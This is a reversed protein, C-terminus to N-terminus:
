KALEAWTKGKLQAETNATVVGRTDELTCVAWLIVWSVFASKGIGHGSAISRRIARAAAESVSAGAKLSAGINDLEERQWDEIKRDFLSGEEGWPFAYLVFGLPDYAFSGIDLALQEEYENKQENM